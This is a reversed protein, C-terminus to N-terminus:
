RKPSLLVLATLASRGNANMLAQASLMFTNPHANIQNLYSSEQDLMVNTHSLRQHILSALKTGFAHLPVTLLPLINGVPATYRPM